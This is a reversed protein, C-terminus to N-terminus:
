SGPARSLLMYGVARRAQASWRAPGVRHVLRMLWALRMERRLRRAELFASRYEVPHWGYPRFFDPGNSPGFLWPARGAALRRGWRRAQHQLYWPSCIDTVWGAFAPQAHLDAALAAVQEPPLYVLLGESVVLARRATACIRAFAARRAPADALDLAIAELECAPRHDRLVAAKEALIEPLDLEFWRLAPPLALRYPRTDLGAGLNVVTDVGDRTVARVILEDFVCTRVILGWAIARGGPMAAVIAAGRAGALARAHPDRFHADARETELARYYAVWRATDSVNELTM